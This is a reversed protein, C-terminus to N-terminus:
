IDCHNGFKELLQDRFKSMQLTNQEIFMHNHYHKERMGHFDYYQDNGRNIRKKGATHNM